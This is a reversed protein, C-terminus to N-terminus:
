FPFPPGRRLAVALWTKEIFEDADLDDFSKNTKPKSKPKIPEKVAVAHQKCFIECLVEGDETKVIRNTFGKPNHIVCWPHAAIACRGFSCQAAAGKKGCYCKLKYRQKDVARLTYRTEDTSISAVSYIDPIWLACLSHIWKNDDTRKYAGGFNSCLECVIEKPNQNIECVDCYWNGEPVEPIGYCSQHV